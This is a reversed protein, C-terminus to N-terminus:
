LWFAANPRVIGFHYLVQTNFYINTFIKKM